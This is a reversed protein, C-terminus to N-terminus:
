PFLSDHMRNVRMSEAHAWLAELAVTVIPAVTDHNSSSSSSGDGSSSDSSGHAESMRRPSVCTTEMPRPQCRKCGGGWLCTWGAEPFGTKRIKLRPFLDRDVHKFGLLLSNSEEASRDSASGQRCCRNCGKQAPPTAAAYAQRVVRGRSCRTSLRSLVAQCAKIRPPWAGYMYITRSQSHKFNTVPPRGGCMSQIGANQPHSWALCSWM